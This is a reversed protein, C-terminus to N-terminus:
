RRKLTKGTLAYIGLLVVLYVLMLVMFRNSYAANIYYTPPFLYQVQRLAGLDFFVPCIVLMLVVLLPLLSGIVSVRGCLRRFTMSFVAVSVAYLIHLVVERGLSETLGGLLLAVLTVLAINLVAISQCGFEVLPKRKQPVLSFTGTQEDRIYYMAAALGGLVIVIALLGRVAILLYNTDEPDQMEVDADLFAFDFLEADMAFEDYHRMLDEDAVGDLQPVNERIYSLYFVRSCHQFMAGSLKERALKLLVSNEREVVRIFANKRVPKQVFRYISNELDEGFIWAADAKNDSVLKQAEEPTECIIFRILSTSDKLEQMVQMALDSEEESTLTITIVGSEKRAVIGYGFVLMPILLLILVFTLKKYLRKNLLWFWKLM